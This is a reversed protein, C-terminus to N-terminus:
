DDGDELVACLLVDSDADGRVLIRVEVRSLEGAEVEDEAVREEAVDVCRSGDWVGDGRGRSSRM